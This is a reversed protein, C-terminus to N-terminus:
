RTVKKANATHQVFAVMVTACVVLTFMITPKAVNVKLYAGLETSRRVDETKEQREGASLRAFRQADPSACTSSKRTLHRM